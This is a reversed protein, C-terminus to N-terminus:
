TLGWPAIDFGYTDRLRLIDPRLREAIDHRQEPSLRFAQVDAKRSRTNQPALESFAFGPDIDLHTCIEQTLGIPDTKLREFPIIKFAAEPFAARYADLQYAYSSVALHHTIDPLAGGPGLQAEGNALNHALHSELRDIPHRLMYIFHKRGSLTKLRQAVDPFAPRKTYGTSADLAIQRIFPRPLYQQFYPTPNEPEDTRSFFEPEKQYQNPAIQPHQVLYHYLTTTGSKMAGILFCFEKIKPTYLGLRMNIRAAKHWLFETNM